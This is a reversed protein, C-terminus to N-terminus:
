KSASRRSTAKVVFKSECPRKNAEWASGKMRLPCPINITFGGNNKMRTSNKGSAIIEEKKELGSLGGIDAIIAGEAYIDPNAFGSQQPEIRVYHSDRADIYLTSGANASNAASLPCEGRFLDIIRYYGDRKTSKQMWIEWPYDDSEFMQAQFWVVPLFWGDIYVCSVDEWEDEEGLILYEVDVSGDGRAVVLNLRDEEKNYNSRALMAPIDAFAADALSADCVEGADDNGAELVVRDDSQRIRRMMGDGRVTYYTDNEGAIRELNVRETVNNRRYYAVYPAVNEEVLIDIKVKARGDIALTLRCRGTLMDADINFQALARGQGETFKVTQVSDAIAGCAGSVEVLVQSPAALNAGERVLVVSFVQEGAALLITKNDVDFSYTYDGDPAETDPRHVIHGGCGALVM